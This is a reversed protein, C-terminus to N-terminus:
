KPSYKQWTEDDVGMLKNILRQTDSMPAKAEQQDTKGQAQDKEDGIEFLANILRQTEDVLSAADVGAGAEGSKAGYKLFTENDVGCMKNIQSQVESIEAQDTTKQTHKM